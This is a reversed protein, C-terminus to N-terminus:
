AASCRTAIYIEPKGLFAPHGPGCSCEQTPVPAAQPSSRGCEELELLGPGPGTSSARSARVPMQIQGGLCGPLGSM